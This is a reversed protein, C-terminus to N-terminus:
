PQLKKLDDYLYSLLAMRGQADPIPYEYGDSTELYISLYCVMESLLCLYEKLITCDEYLWKELTEFASEPLKSLVSNERENKKETNLMESINIYPCFYLVTRGKGNSLVELATAGNLLWVPTCFRMLIFTCACFFGAVLLLCAISGGKLINLVALIRSKKYM